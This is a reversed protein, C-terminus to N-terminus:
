YSVTRVTDMRKRHLATELLVIRQQIEPTDWNLRGTSQQLTKSADEVQGVVLQAEALNIQALISEPFRAACYEFFQMATLRDQIRYLLNVGFQELSEVTYDYANPQHEKLEEYYKLASDLSNTQLLKEGLVKALLPKPSVLPVSSMLWQMLQHNILSANFDGAINAVVAVAVRQSPIMAVDATFGGLDHHHQYLKGFATNTIEWGFGIASATDTPYFAHLLKGARKSLFRQGTVTKGQQLTVYLWRALDDLSTHWGMSGAHERNGPYMGLTDLTYTLWNKVAHPTAVTDIFCADKPFFSHLMGMPKLVNEWMCDEFPMGSVKALLDALIDYNYPSRRVRKGPPTFEPPQLRISRTTNELANDNYDPYDWMTAHRPVGGTQNMLHRISINSIDGDGLRFYPLFDVVPQDIDLKGEDALRLVGMVVMLESLSGAFFSTGDTFGISASATKFADGVSKYYVQHNKIVVVGLAPIPLTRQLNTVYTDLTGIEGTGFSKEALDASCAVYLLSIMLIVGARVLFCIANKMM